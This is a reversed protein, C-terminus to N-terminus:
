EESIAESLEEIAKLEEDENAILARRENIAIYMKERKEGTLDYFFYPLANIVGPFFNIATYLFYVKRYILKSGQSWPTMPIGPNYGSWRFLKITLWANIPSTVKKILDTLINITGDPREGTMYETYDAIERGIEAEFVNAPGNNINNVTLWFGTVFVMFWKKDVFPCGMCAMAVGCLLDWFRLVLVASKNSKFIKRFKPIFTVSVYDMVTCCTYACLTPISGGFIEQQTVIDWSYGGSSWWSVSFNAIFNRLMYKNKLVYFISKEVPAPKQQLLIREKCRLGMLINGIAGVTSAVVGFGAYIYRLPIDIIGKNSIELLPILVWFVVNSGFTGVYNELLGVAIRDDPNATQLSLMNNRPIGYITSFTEQLFLAIFLFFVKRSDNGPLDGYFIAGCYVVVTSLYYPIAGFIIYPRAKGYRTRTRDYAIGMLPNNLVDYIGILTLILTVYTMDIKLVSVFYLTRYCDLAEVMKSAFKGIAPYAMERPTLVRTNFLRIALDNFRGLKEEGLSAASNDEADFFSRVDIKKEEAM